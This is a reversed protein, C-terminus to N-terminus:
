CTSREGAPTPCAGATSAEVAETLFGNRIAGAIYGQSWGKEAPRAKPHTFTGGSMLDVLEAITLEGREVVLRVIAAVITGQNPSIDGPRLRRTAMKNGPRQPIATHPGRPSTMAAARETSAALGSEVASSAVEARGTAAQLPVTATAPPFSDEVSFGSTALTKEKAKRSLLKRSNGPRTELMRREPSASIKASM